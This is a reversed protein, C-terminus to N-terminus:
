QDFCIIEFDSETIEAPVLGEGRDVDDAQGHPQGQADSQKRDPVLGNPGRRM